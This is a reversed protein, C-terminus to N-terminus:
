SERPCHLRNERQFEGVKASIMKMAAKGEASHGLGVFQFGLMAKQGDPQDPDASAAEAHRFQADVFITEQGTGFVLRVGVIDGIELWECAQDETCLQFGGASINTVRGSWVPRDPSTGAPESEIGGLWFSARVVRNAPVEARIYARRQLRQMRSPLCLCLVSLTNGQEDILSATGAVTVVCMHKHHKLKFSLGVKDAPALPYAQDGQGITPAQVLLHSDKIAMVRSRLKLWGAPSRITITAPVGREVASAVAENIQEISLDQLFAM